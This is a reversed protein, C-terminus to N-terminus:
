QCPPRCPNVAFAAAAAAATISVQSSHVLPQASHSVCSADGCRQAYAICSADPGQLLASATQVPQPPQSRTHTREQAGQQVVMRVSV